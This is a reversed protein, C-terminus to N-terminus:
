EKSMFTCPIQLSFVLLIGIGVSVSLTAYNSFLLTFYVTLTVVILFQTMNKFVREEKQSLKRNINDIPSCQCIHVSAFLVICSLLIPKRWCEFFKIVGFAILLIVISVLFCHKSSTLHFGGSFKRILMFPVILLLGEKLMGFMIGLIVAITLPLTGFLLSYVSYCYLPIDKEM